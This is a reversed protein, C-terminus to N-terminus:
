RLPCPEVGVLQRPYWRGCCRVTACYGSGNRQQVEPAQAIPERRARIAAARDSHLDDRRIAFGERKAQQVAFLELRKGDRRRQHSLQRARVEDPGLLRNWNHELPICRSLSKLTVTRAELCECDRELQQQGTAPSFPSVSQM